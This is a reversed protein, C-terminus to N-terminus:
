VEEDKRLTLIEIGERTIAITHEFHAAMSGDCTVVAWGDATTKNKNSGAVLMPEIALVLGSKIEYGVGRVGYNPVQPSEHLDRGVGHGVFERIVEYGKQTALKEIGM